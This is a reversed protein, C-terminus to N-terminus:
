FPLDDEVIADPVSVNTKPAENVPNAGRSELLEIREARIKTRYVKVGDKDYSDYVIDGQILLKHGQAVYELVKVSNGWVEINHWQTEEVFNGDAKKYKKSTALSFSGVQTTGAQRIEPTQGVRGQIIVLNM